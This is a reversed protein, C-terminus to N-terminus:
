KIKKDLCCININPNDVLVTVFTTSLNVGYSYTYVGQSLHRKWKNKIHPKWKNQNDNEGNQTV